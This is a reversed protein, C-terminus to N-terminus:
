AHQSPWISKLFLRALRIRKKAVPPLWCLIAYLLPEQALYHEWQEALRDITRKEATTSELQQRRQTMSEAPAQGLEMGTATRAISLDSWACEIDILKKEEAQIAMRLADVITSVNLQEKTIDPFAAAAACLFAKQAETVYADSEVKKFFSRTQYKDKAEDRKSESPFYAGFSDIGPLWRGAFPGDGSAFNKGFADIINTVAQNNTSAALVVPPEGNAIAAEAWLSAVASLLLTTKGTGPPGNVALIEKAKAMMLHALADRQAPALALNSQNSAHALRRSFAGHPPLCPEPPSINTSAYLEFLPAAPSKDRIHDYLAIIHQSASFSEKKVLWGYEALVYDDEDAPWGKGTQELLQDCAALFSAWQRSFEDNSLPTGDDTATDIGPITNTSLFADQDSVLGISFSGRELPELIDRPVVIRPLAYLRGDRALKASAVIPTVFDPTGVRRPKGHEQPPGYVKPRIIVEVFQVEKAEKAFCADIITQGILGTSLEEASFKQFKSTDRPTGDGADADALSNRWYEAYSLSNTQM